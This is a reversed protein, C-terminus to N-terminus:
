LDESFSLVRASSYHINNSINTGTAMELPRRSKGLIMSSYDMSALRELLGGNVSM